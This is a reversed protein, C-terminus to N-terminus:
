ETLLEEERKNLGAERKPDLDNTHRRDGSPSYASKKGRNSSDDTSRTEMFGGSTKEQRKHEHELHKDMANGKPMTNTSRTKEYSSEALRRRGNLNAILKGRKISYPFVSRTCTLCRRPDNGPNTRKERKYGNVPM